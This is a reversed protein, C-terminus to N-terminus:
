KWCNLYYEKEEMNRLLDCASSTLYDMKGIIRLDDQKLEDYLFIVQNNATVALDGAKAESVAPLSSFDIGTVAIAVGCNEYPSFLLRGCRETLQDSQLAEILKYGINYGGTSVAIQHPEITEAYEGQCLAYLYQRIYAKKDQDSRSLEQSSSIAFSEMGEYTFVIRSTAGDLVQYQSLPKKSIAYLHERAAYDRMEELAKKDAQYVRTVIRDNHYKAMETTVTVSGDRNQALRVSELEGLMSGGSSYSCSILELSRFKNNPFFAFM